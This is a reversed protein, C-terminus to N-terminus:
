WPQGSPPIYMLVGLQLMWNSLVLGMWTKLVWLSPQDPVWVEITLVLGVLVTPVIFLTHVRIELASKNEIHTMLLLALM